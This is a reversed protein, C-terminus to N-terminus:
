EIMGFHRFADKICEIKTVPCPNTRELGQRNWAERRQIGCQEKVDAIWCTKPKFGYNAKVYQQIEEYTAM